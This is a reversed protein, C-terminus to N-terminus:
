LGDPGRTHFRSNEDMWPHQQKHEDRLHNDSSRGEQATFDTTRVIKGPPWQGYDGLSEDNRTGSDGTARTIRPLSEAEDIQRYNRSTTQTKQQSRKWRKLQMSEDSHKRHLSRLSAAIQSVLGNAFFVKPVAPICFVLYLCTMEAILWLTLSAVSGVEDDSELWDVTVYVRLAASACTLIGMAFIVSVGLKQKLPMQLKWIVKQPLLLILVDSVLNVIGATVDAYKSEICHGGARTKDWIFERPTCQLNALFTGAVYYCVNLALLIHCIWWFTNRAPRPVFIRSWERLISVKICCICVGYLNAGVYIRYFIPAMDRNRVDWQHVFFGYNFIHWYNLYCYGVYLCYGALALYDEFKTSKIVFVRSCVRTMVALTTLTLCVALAAHAIGNKVPPDDFNSIQGPPPALAARNLFEEQQSPSLSHFNEFSM